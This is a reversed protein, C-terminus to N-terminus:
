RGRAARVGRGAQRALRALPARGARRPRRSAPGPAPRRAAQRRHSPPGADAHTPNGARLLLLPREHRGGALAETGGLLVLGPWERRAQEAVAPPMVLLTPGRRIAERLEEWGVLVAAPRGLRYLFAHAEAQFLVVPLGERRALAALPRYDRYAAEAPLHHNLYFAWAALAAGLASAALRPRLRVWGELLCGLFLAAGPYAPLLYDARKFRAASLLAVTGALWALGLRALPDHRWARPWLALLLLPSAPLLYLLLYPGYLWWPHARLRSGGLGRQVNHLWFFDRCFAGETAWDLWVFVPVAVLLVLLLGRLVDLEIFVSRWAKGEWFAPWRGEAL